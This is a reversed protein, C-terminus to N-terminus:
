HRVVEDHITGATGIMGHDEVPANGKHGSIRGGSERRNDAGSGCKDWEDVYADIMIDAFGAAVL